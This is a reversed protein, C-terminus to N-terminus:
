RRRFYQELGYGARPRMGHRCSWETWGHTRRQGRRQLETYEIRPCKGSGLESGVKARILDLGPVKPELARDALVRRKFRPIDAVMTAIQELSQIGIGEYPIQLRIEGVQNGGAESRARRALRKGRNGHPAHVAVAAYSPDTGVCRIGVVVSQLGLEAGVVQELLQGNASGVSVGLIQVVHALDEARKGAAVASEKRLIRRVLDVPRAFVGEGTQIVGM